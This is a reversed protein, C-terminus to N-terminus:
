VRPPPPEPQSSRRIPKDVLMAIAEAPSEHVAVVALQLPPNAVLTCSMMAGCNRTPVQGTQCAGEGPVDCGHAAGPAGIVAHAVDMAHATLLEHRACLLGSGLLIWQLLLIHTILGILRRYPRM